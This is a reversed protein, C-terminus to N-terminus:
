LRDDMELHVGFLEMAIYQVKNAMVGLSMFCNINGDPSRSFDMQVSATDGIKRIAGCLYQPFVDGLRSIAPNSLSPQDSSRSTAILSENPLSISTYQPETADGPATTSSMQHDQQLSSDTQILTQMTPTPSM